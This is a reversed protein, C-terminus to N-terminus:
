PSDLRKVRELEEQLRRSSEYDKRSCSREVVKWFCTCALTTVTIGISFIWFKYDLSWLRGDVLIQLVNLKHDTYLLWVFKPFYGFFFFSIVTLVGHWLPNM